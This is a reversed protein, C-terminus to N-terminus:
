KADAVPYRSEWGGGLAKYLQVLNMSLTVSSDAAQQQAELLTRQAELTNLFDTVGAVYRARALSLARASSTVAQQLNQQRRQEDAYATLANDVDHLAQLVTSQYNIAAEQQEAQRLRLTGRLRGGEFIPLTISPGLAYQRADWTGLNKFQLAQLSLSGSLTIRPFFDAVAVGVDATASHLQAEAQRIDPRRRALESPLGVPVSPPVPPVPAPTALESTLAGPTEGLLFSLANIQEAIQQQAQPLQSQTSALQAAANDVDLETTVGGAYRQRTLTLSDQESAINQNLIGLITQEGRLNIYDRAVEALVSLLGNRRADASAELSADAGEIERRVRGWLDLEWSADFGYQWLNFPTSVSSGTSTSTSGPIPVVGFNGETGNASTGYAGATGTPGVSSSSSPSGFLSLLGRNSAKERTYSANGNLQPMQDALAIRLQARSEALRLTATRVNLNADAVRNELATLEPDNFVSWWAPDLPAATVVSIPAAPRPHTTFWSAPTFLSPKKFDPGVACGGLGLTATLLLGTATRALGRAGATLRTAVVRFLPREM